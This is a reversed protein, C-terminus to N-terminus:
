RWPQKLKLDLWHLDAHYEAVHEAQILFLRVVRDHQLHPFHVGGLSQAGQDAGQDIQRRGYWEEDAHRGLPQEAPPGQVLPGIRVYHTRDPM